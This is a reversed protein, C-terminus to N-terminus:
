RGPIHLVQGPRITNSRIGNTQKLRSVTTGHRRAIRWLNDGRRVRYTASVPPDDLEPSAVEIGHESRLYEIYPQPFLVVHYHPPWHERAAELVGRQELGLLTKGLWARCTRNHSVRLDIAMGTPHVSLPSANRPQRSKPRVLSTVVLREGCARRYQRALRVVFLEVQPRAYPFPVNSKLAYDQNGRLRVLRGQEAFEWVHHPTILYAYGHERAAEVQRMLASRSPRLSAAEVALPTTLCLLAALVAGSVTRLRNGEM